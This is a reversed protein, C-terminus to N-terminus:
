REGKNNEKSGQDKVILKFMEMFAEAKYRAEADSLREGFNAFYIDSYEQIAKTDM